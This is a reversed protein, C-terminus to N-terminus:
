MQQAAGKSEDKGAGPLLMKPIYFEKYRNVMGVVETSTLSNIRHPPYGLLAFPIYPQDKTHCGDCLLPQKNVMRHIVAKMKSQQTPNLMDKNKLYEEVFSLEKSGNLFRFNGNEMYGPAIKAGYNGYKEIDVAVLGPPNGIAGGTKKDYWRFIWAPEGEKPRIHCNECALYFAHMNLFARIAKAKHHPVDGHCRICISQLDPEITLGIHHFHGKVYQEEVVRVGLDTKKVQKQEILLKKFIKEEETGDKNKEIEHLEALEKDGEAHGFMLPTIFSAYWIVFCMLVIVYAKSIIKKILNFM